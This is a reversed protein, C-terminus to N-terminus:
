KLSDQTKVVNRDETSLTIKTRGSRSSVTNVTGMERAEKLEFDTREQWTIKLQKMWATDKEHPGISRKDSPIGIVYCAYPLNFRNFTQIKRRWYFPKVLLIYVAALSAIAALSNQPWDSSVSVPFINELCNRNTDTHSPILFYLGISFINENFDVIAASVAALSVFSVCM